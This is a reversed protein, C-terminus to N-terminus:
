IELVIPNNSPQYSENVYAANVFVTNEGIKYIGHGSHIHGSVVLKPKIEIIRNLLSVSGTHENGFSSFDGYGHPPGHLLLIDTDEPILQWKQALKEESANFAWNFFIPQWPSGWINLGQFKSGSDELYEWNLNPVMEKAREFIFDHNGSVVFIKMRQSLDDIWPKLYTQMWESSLHVNHRNTPVIDGAILLVDCEPIEPLNGHIDSICCVKM